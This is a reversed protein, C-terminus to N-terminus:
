KYRLVARVSQGYSRYSGYLGAEDSGVFLYYASRDDEAATGSWCLGGGGALNLESDYRFGAFPIFLTNGNKGHFLRGQVGNIEKPESTLTLLEQIEGFTPMRWEEGWNATAADYNATLNGNDDIVEQEKLSAYSTDYWGFTGETYESTMGWAFYSGYEEPKTAGVNYTAWLTGSELGLDVLQGDYK